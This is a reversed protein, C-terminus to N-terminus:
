GETSLESLAYGQVENQQYIEKERQQDRRLNAHSELFIDRAKAPQYIIFYGVEMRIVHIM